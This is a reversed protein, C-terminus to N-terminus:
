RGATTENETCVSEPLLARAGLQEGLSSDCHCALIPATLVVRSTGVLLPAGILAWSKAQCRSQDRIPLHGSHHMRHITLARARTTDSRHCPGSPGGDSARGQGLFLPYASMRWSGSTRCIVGTPWAARAPTGSVVLM